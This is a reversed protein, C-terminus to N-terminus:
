SVPLEGALRDAWDAAIPQVGFEEVAMRVFGAASVPGTLFHTKHLLWPERRAVPDLFASGVHLHPWSRKAAPDNPTWHYAVVEDLRTQGDGRFLQYAYSDVTIEVADPSDSKPPLPVRLSVRCRLWLRDARGETKLRFPRGQPSSIEAVRATPDSAHPSLTVFVQEAVIAKVARIIPRTHADLADQVRRNV